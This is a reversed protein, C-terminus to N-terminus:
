DLDEGPDVGWLRAQEVFGGRGKIDIYCWGRACRSIRGVVGPAARWAVNGGSSPDDRLEAIGGHVIATRQASLLGVQMWGQTGDPDEVKRWDRYIDVVKIPLDARVYLWNAPYNRGPGTRMRAKSAAISAYYPPKRTQAELTTVGASAVAGAVIASTWRYNSHM